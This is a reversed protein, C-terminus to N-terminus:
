PTQGCNRPETKEASLLYEPNTVSHKPSVDQLFDESDLTKKPRMFEGSDKQERTM